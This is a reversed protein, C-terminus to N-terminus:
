RAGTNSLKWWAEIRQNHVSAVYRHSDDRQTLASHIAAVRVNETGAETWLHTPCFGMEQVCSCYFNTVVKPDKNTSSAALWMIRGSYGDICARVCTGFPKLQGWGDCHWVQLHVRYLVVPGIAKAICHVYHLFCNFDFCLCHDDERIYFYLLIRRDVVPSVWRQRCLNPTAAHHLGTGHRPHRPEIQAPHRLCTAQEQFYSNVDTSRSVHGVAAHVIMAYPYCPSGYESM